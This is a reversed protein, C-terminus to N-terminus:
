KKYLKGVEFRSSIILDLETSCSNKHGIFRQLLRLFTGKGNLGAGNLCFIRHIPYDPLMCYAIIEYLTDVWDKGVWEEFLKDITPTDTSEGINHPIPNTSFYEPTSQFKEDTVIDIINNNFQIWTRKFKKPINKRGIRKLSEIIENKKQTKTTNYVEKLAKDLENMIDVEDVIMWMRDKKSWLWWIKEKTYFMPHKSIFKRALDLDNTFLGFDESFKDDDFSMQKRIKNFEKDNLKEVIGKIIDKDEDTLEYDQSIRRIIEVTDIVGIGHLMKVNKDLTILDINKM